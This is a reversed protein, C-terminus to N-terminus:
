RLVDFDIPMRNFGVIIGPSFTNTRKFIAFWPHARIQDVDFREEPDTVLIKKM